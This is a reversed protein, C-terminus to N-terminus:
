LTQHRVRSDLLTRVVGWGVGHFALKAAPRAAVRRSFCAVQATHSGYPMATLTNRAL